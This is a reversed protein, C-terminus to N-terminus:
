KSQRALTKPAPTMLYLVMAIGSALATILTIPPLGGNWDGINLWGGAGLEFIHATVMTSGLIKYLRMENSGPESRAILYYAYAAIIGFMLVLEGVRGMKGGDAFDYFVPYYDPSILPYSMFVHLFASHLAVRGWDRSLLGDKKFYSIAAMLLAIVSGMSVAKNLLYLPINEPLKPGFYIYRLITYIFCLTFILIVKKTM